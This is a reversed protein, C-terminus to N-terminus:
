RIRALPAVADLEHFRSEIDAEPEYTKSKQRYTWFSFGLWFAAIAVTILRKSRAPDHIFNGSLSGILMTVPDTAGPASHRIWTLVQIALFSITLWSALSTLNPTFHVRAIRQGAEKHRVIAIPCFLYAATAISFLMSVLSSAKETEWMQIFYATALLLWTTATVKRLAEFYAAKRNRYIYVFGAIGALLWGVTWLLVDAGIKARDNQYRALLNAAETDWGFFDYFASRFSQYAYTQQFAQVRAKVVLSAVYNAYDHVVSFLNYGFAGFITDHNTTSLPLVAPHLFDPQEAFRERAWRRVCELANFNKQMFPTQVLILALDYSKVIRDSLKTDGPYQAKYNPLEQRPSAFEVQEPHPKVFFTLMWCAVTAIVALAIIKQSSFKM